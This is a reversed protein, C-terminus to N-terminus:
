PATKDFGFFASALAKKGMRASFHESPCFFASALAEKSLM